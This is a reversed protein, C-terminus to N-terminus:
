AARRRAAAALALLGTAVLALTAPEPVATAAPGVVTGREFRYTVAGTVDNGAADLFALSTIRGTHAFDAIASGASPLVGSVVSSETTVSISFNILVGPGTPLLALFFSRMDNVYNVHEPPHGTSALGSAQSSANGYHEAYVGSGYAQFGWSAQATANAEGAGGTSLVGDWTVGIQVAAPLVGTIILQDGWRASAQAHWLKNAPGGQFSGAAYTSAGVHGDVAHASLVYTGGGLACSASSTGPGPIVMDSGCAIGTPPIASNTNAVMYRETFPQAGGTRAALLLLALAAAVRVPVPAPM